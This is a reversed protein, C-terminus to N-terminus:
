TELIIQDLSTLGLADYEIPIEHPLSIREVFTLISMLRNIYDKLKNALENSRTLLLQRPLREQTVASGAAYKALLKFVLCTTKGTGSRGLILSSTGFHLIIRTEDGSFDFPFEAVLDHALVSRLM